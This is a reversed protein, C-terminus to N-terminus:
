GGHGSWPLRRPSCRGTTCQQWNKGGTAHGADGAATRGEQWTIGARPEPLAIVVRSWM